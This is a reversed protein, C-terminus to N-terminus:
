AEAAYILRADRSIQMRLPSEAELEDLRVLDIKHVVRSEDIDHRLRAFDAGSADPAEVALDIDSTRTATGRARSGFLWAKRIQPYRALVERLAELDAERLAPSTM